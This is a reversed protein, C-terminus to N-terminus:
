KRQRENYTELDESLHFSCRFKDVIEDNNSVLLVFSSDFPVIEVCALPHQLSIPNNWFGEYGDAHPLESKLVENLEIDKEFGSLVAWIWQFDETEIIRTLQDGSLWCYEKSLLQDIETSQPYCECSTILWNYNKQANDIASFVKSLYTYYKEGKDLIAGKM